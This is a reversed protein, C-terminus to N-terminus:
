TRSHLEKLVARRVIAPKSAISHNLFPKPKEPPQVTLSWFSRSAHRKPSYFSLLTHFHLHEPSLRASRFHKRCAWRDGEHEPEFLLCATGYRGSGGYILWICDGKSKRAQFDASM